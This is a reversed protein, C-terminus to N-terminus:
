MTFDYIGKAIVKCVILESEYSTYHPSLASNIVVDYFERGAVAIATQSKTVHVKSCKPCYPFVKGYYAPSTLTYVHLCSLCTPYEFKNYNLLPRAQEQLLHGGKIHLPAYYQVRGEWHGKWNFCGHNSKHLYNAIISEALM